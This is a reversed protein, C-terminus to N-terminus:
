ETSKPVIKKIRIEDADVSVKYFHINTIDEAERIAIQTTQYGSFKLRRAVRTAAEYPFKETYTAIEGMHNPKPEGNDAVEVWHKKKTVYFSSKKIHQRYKNLLDIVRRGEHFVDRYEHLIETWAGEGYRQVGAELAKCEEQSWQIKERNKGRFDTYKGPKRAEAASTHLKINPLKARSKAVGM